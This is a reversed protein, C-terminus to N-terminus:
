FQRQYIELADEITTVFAVFVLGSEANWGDDFLLLVFEELKLSSLIDGYSNHSFQTRNDNDIYGGLVFFANPATNRGTEFTFYHNPLRDSFQFGEIYVNGKFSGRTFGHSFFRRALIGNVNIYRIEYNDVDDLRLLVGSTQINIESEFTLSGFVVFLIGACFAIRLSLRATKKM